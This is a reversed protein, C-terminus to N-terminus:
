TQKIRCSFRRRLIQKHQVVVKFSKAINRRNKNAIRVKFYGRKRLPKIKIRNMVIYIKERNNRGANERKERERGRKKIQRFLAGLVM